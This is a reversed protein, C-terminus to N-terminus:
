SAPAAEPPLQAKRVRELLEGNFCAKLGDERSFLPYCGAIRDDKPNGDNQQYRKGGCVKKMLDRYRDRTADPLGPGSRHRFYAGVDGPVEITFVVGDESERDFRVYDPDPMKARVFGEDKLVHHMATGLMRDGTACRYAKTILDLLKPDNSIADFIHNDMEMDMNKDHGKGVLSKILDQYQSINERIYSKGASRALCADLWRLIHESYSMTFFSRGARYQGVESCEQLTIAGDPSTISGKSPGRGDLTLYFLYPRKRPYRSYRYLQNDQDGAWIKNEIIIAVDSNKAIIDVRGNVDLLPTESRVQWEEDVAIQLDGFQQKLM